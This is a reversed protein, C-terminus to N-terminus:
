DFDIKAIDIIFILIAFGFCGFGVLNLVTDIISFKYGIFEVTIANTNIVFILIIGLTLAYAIAWISIKKTDNLTTKTAM